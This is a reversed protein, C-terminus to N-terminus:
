SGGSLLGKLRERLDVPVVIVRSRRGGVVAYGVIALGAARLRGLPSEPLRESWWYGDEDDSGFQRTVPGSRAWGGKDLLYALLKRARGDSDVQALNSLARATDQLLFQVLQRERDPRRPAPDPLAHVRCAADVWEVPLKRLAQALTTADPRVPKDEASKRRSREYERVLYATMAELDSGGAYKEVRRKLALREELVRRFTDLERRIGRPQDKVNIQNLYDLAQRYESRDFHILALHYLVVPHDPAAALAAQLWRYAEDREGLELLVSSYVIAMPGWVREQGAFAKELMIRARRLDGEEWVEMIEQYRAEAEPDPGFDVPGPFMRMVAPEGDIVAPIDEGPKYVGLRRLGDAAAFKLERPLNPAELVGRALQEGWAGGGAILSSLLHMAAPMHEEPELFVSSLVMLAYGPDAELLERALEAGSRGAASAEKAVRELKEVDPLEYNLLLPPAVGREFVDTVEAWREAGDWGDRAARGWAQAALHWRELNFAAVGAYFWASWHAHLHAWRQNLRLVERHDGLEGAARLIASTYERWAVSDATEPDAKEFASVAERLRRRASLEDGMAAHCRSALSLTFPHWVEDTDYLLPALTDLAARPDREHELYIAALNNLAFPLPYLDSAKQFLRKAKDLRNERLYRHAQEALEAAAEL